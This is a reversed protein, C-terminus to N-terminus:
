RPVRYRTKRGKSSYPNCLIRERERRLPKVPPHKFLGEEGGGISDGVYERGDGYAGPTGLMM